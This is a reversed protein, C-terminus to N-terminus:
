LAPTPVAGGEGGTPGAPSSKGARTDPDRKPYPKALPIVRARIEDDLPLLYTHKWRVPGRTVKIGRQCLLRVSATGFKASASRKHTEVGDIIIESQPTSRGIYTWGLAQYIGGHHGQDPDAYSILLRIGPSQRTLFRIAISVIRSVPEKHASLAVRVLECVEQATLKFPVGIHNNAGRGFIICGIFSGNEWVGIKVLKGSPIQRSYHWREVAYKAAEHTCWDLRLM